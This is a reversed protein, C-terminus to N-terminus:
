APDTRRRGGRVPRSPARRRDRARRSVHIIAEAGGMCLVWNFFAAWQVGLSQWQMVLWVAVALAVARLIWPWKPMTYCLKVIGPAFAIGQKPTM